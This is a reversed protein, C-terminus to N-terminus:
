WLGCASPGAAMRLCATTADDEHEQNQISPFVFLTQAFDGSRVDFRLRVVMSWISVFGFFIETEKTRNPNALTARQLLKRHFRNRRLRRVRRRITDQVPM